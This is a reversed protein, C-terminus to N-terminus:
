DSSLNTSAVTGALPAVGTAATVNAAWAILEPATAVAKSGNGVEVDADLTITDAEVTIEDPVGDIHLCRFRRPDRNVFAVLALGGTNPKVREGMLGPYLAVRLLSPWGSGQDAITLDVEQTRAGSVTYEVLACTQLSELEDRVLERITDQLREEPSLGTLVELRLKGDNSFVVSVSSITHPGPVIKSDFTRAPTWDAPSESAIVFMGRAPHYSEVTFPTLIPATSRASLQTIGAPDIWWQGGILRRLVASAKGARRAYGPGIAVDALGAIQEGCERAADGLVTSLMVGASLQYGRPPLVKRWGAYGGVVRVSRDGGFVGGRLLTGKQSLAGVAITVGLPTSPIETAGAMHLDALPAGWRPFTIRGHSVMNGNVALYASM